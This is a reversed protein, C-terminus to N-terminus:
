AGGRRSLEKRLWAAAMAWERNVTRCSLGLAGATEKVTMGAFYRLEVIQAQHRDFQRLRSLAEDVALIEEMKHPSAEIELWDLSMPPVGHGRKDALRTRAYDVLARRMMEAAIGFFHKRDRWEVKTQNALRLWAEHILATTQLTHGPPELHMYAGAIRRLERYIIRILEDAAETQGQSAKRLLVTIEGPPGGVPREDMPMTEGM